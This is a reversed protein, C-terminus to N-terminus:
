GSVDPRDGPMAGPGYQARTVDSSVHAPDAACGVLGLLVIVILAYLIKNGSIANM